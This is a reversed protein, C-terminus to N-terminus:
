PNILSRPKITPRNLNLNILGWNPKNPRYNYRCGLLGPNSLLYGTFIIYNRPRRLWSSSIYPKPYLNIYIYLLYLPPSYTYVATSIPRGIYLLHLIAVCKCFYFLNSDWLPNLNPRSPNNYKPPKHHTITPEM